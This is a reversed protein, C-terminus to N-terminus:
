RVTQGFANYVHGNMEIFLQGNEIRKIANADAATNSIATPTISGKVITLQMNRIWVGAAGNSKIRIDNTSAESIADCYAADSGSTSELDSWNQGGDISIFCKTDASEIKGYFSMAKFLYGSQTQIIITNGEKKGTNLSSGEAADDGAGEVNDFTIAKIYTSVSADNSKIVAAQSGAVACASQDKKWVLDIVKSDAVSFNITYTKTSNDEATVVVTASGNVSTAQTVVVSKAYPDNKTGAVAPVVTTGFPLEVNYEETAPAFGTVTVGDVTLDALTADSSVVHATWQATITLDTTPMKTVNTSWGTFDYNEKTM